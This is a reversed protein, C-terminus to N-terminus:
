TDPPPVPTAAADLRLTVGPPPREPNASQVRLPLAPLAGPPPRLVPKSPGGLSPLTDFTTQLPGPDPLRLLLDPSRQLTTQVSEDRCLENGFIAGSLLVFEFRQRQEVIRRQPSHRPTGMRAAHLEECKPFRLSRRWRSTSDGGTRVGPRFSVERVRSRPYRPYRRSRSAVILVAYRDQEHLWRFERFFDHRLVEPGRGALDDPHSYGFPKSM